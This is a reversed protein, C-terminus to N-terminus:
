YITNDDSDYYMIQRFPFSEDMSEAALSGDSETNNQESISDDDSDYCMEQVCPTHEDMSENMSNEEEEKGSDNNGIENLKEEDSLGHMMESISTSLRMAGSSQERPHRREEEKKKNEWRDLIHEHLIQSMSALWCEMCQYWDDKDAIQLLNEFFSNNQSPLDARERVEKTVRLLMLNAKKWDKEHFYSKIADKIENSDMRRHCIGFLVLLLKMDDTVKWASVHKPSDDVMDHNNLFEDIHELFTLFDDVDYRGVVFNNLCLSEEGTLIIEPFLDRVEEDATIFKWMRLEHWRVMRICNFVHIAEPFHMYLENTKKQALPKENPFSHRAVTGHLEYVALETDHLKKVTGDQVAIKFFMLSKLGRLANVVSMLEINRTKTSGTLMVDVVEGVVDNNELKCLTLKCMDEKNFRM